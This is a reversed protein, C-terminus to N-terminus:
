GVKRMYFTKPMHSFDFADILLLNADGHFAFKFTGAQFEELGIERLPATFTFHIYPTVQRGVQEHNIVWEGQAGSGKTGIKASHDDRALELRVLGDDSEWTGVLADTLKRDRSEKHEQDLLTLALERMFNVNEAPNTFFNFM